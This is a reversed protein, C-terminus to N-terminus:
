SFRKSINIAMMIESSWWIKRLKATKMIRIIYICDHCCKLVWYLVLIHMDVVCRSVQRRTEASM